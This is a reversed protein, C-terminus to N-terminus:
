ITRISYVLARAQILKWRRQQEDGGGGSKRLSIINHLFDVFRARQPKHIYRYIIYKSQSENLPWACTGRTILCKEIDRTESAFKM